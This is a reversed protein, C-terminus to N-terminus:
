FLVDLYSDIHKILTTELEKLRLFDQSSVCFVKLDDAIRKFRKSDFSPAESSDDNKRELVKRMSEPFEARIKQRM